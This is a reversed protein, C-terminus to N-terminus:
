SLPKPNTKPMGKKFRLMMMLGLAVLAGTGTEGEPVPKPNQSSNFFGKLDFVPNRLGSPSCSGCLSTPFLAGFEYSVCNNSGIPCTVTDFTGVPADTLYSVQQAPFPYLDFRDTGGAFRAQPRVLNPSQIVQEAFVSIGTGRRFSGADRSVYVNWNNGLFLPVVPGAPPFGYVGPPNTGYPASIGFLDFQLNLFDPTDSLVTTGPTITVADAQVGLGLALGFVTSSLLVNSFRHRMM